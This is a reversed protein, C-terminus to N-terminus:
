LGHSGPPWLVLLQNAGLRRTLMMWEDERARNLAQRTDACSPPGSRRQVMRKDMLQGVRYKLVRHLLGKPSGVGHGGWAAKGVGHGGWAAKGVGCRWGCSSRTAMRRRGSRRRRRRRRRRSRRQRSRRRGRGTFGGRWLELSTAPSQAVRLGRGARDLHLLQGSPPTSFSPARTVPAFRVMCDISSGNPVTGVNVTRSRVDWAQRMLCLPM